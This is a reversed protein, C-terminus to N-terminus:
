LGALQASVQDDVTQLEVEPPEDVARKRAARVQQAIPIGWEHGAADFYIGDQHYMRGEADGAVTGFDRRRDLKKM